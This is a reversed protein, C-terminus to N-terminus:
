RSFFLKNILLSINSTDLEQGKLTFDNLIPILYLKRSTVLLSIWLFQSYSKQTNDRFASEHVHVHVNAHETKKSKLFGFAAFPVRARERERFLTNRSLLIISFGSDDCRLHRYVKLRDEFPSYPCDVSHINSM